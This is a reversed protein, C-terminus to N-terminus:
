LVEKGFVVIMSDHQGCGKSFFVGNSDMQEFRIRGRVFHISNANPQIIDHFLATSTSVPLLLVCIKGKRSEALAKRVFAEKLKRSYPPNVFNVKGWEMSLGDFKSQYPCPDFDFHYVADLEQYFDDPTKWDDGSANRADKNKM